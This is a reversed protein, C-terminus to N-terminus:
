VDNLDDAEDEEDTPDDEFEDRDGPIGIHLIPAGPAVLPLTTAGIVVGDIPSEVQTQEEGLPSNTVWLPQGETVTDGPSAFLDIIGGREARLWRSEHMVVSPPVDDDDMDAPPDIMGIHQMVRLTGAVAVDIADDNFRLAEGGEYTLVPVDIDAAVERLSGARLSADLIYPARFAMALDLAKRHSTHIRMQPVNTRRNAATHLDIGVDSGRVVQDMLLRAIRSAMSGGLTGPFSRNLDRRDPLYRSHIQAGLMNVIPVVILIGRLSPPEVRALLERCVAIGNLEDGHVAATVFMRPGDSSGNIVAMPITTRDGTYSESAPPAVDRREGPSVETGAVTIAENM